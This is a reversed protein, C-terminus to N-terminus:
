VIEKLQKACHICIYTKGKKAWARRQPTFQHVRCACQYAYTKTERKQVAYSHCRSPTAGLTNMVSKWNADHGRTAFLEWSVVHAFEHVVTDLLFQEENAAYLKTSFELRGTEYFARGATSTLRNNMHVSVEFTRGFVQQCTEQLDAIKSLIKEM